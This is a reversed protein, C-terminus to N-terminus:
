KKKRNKSRSKNIAQQKLQEKVEKYRDDQHRKKYDSSAVMFPAGLMVAVVLILFQSPLWAAFANAIFFAGAAVWVIGATKHTAKWTEEDALTTKFRFGISNNQPCRPFILGIIFVLVGLFIQILMVIPLEMGLGETYSYAAIFWSILPCICLLMRYMADGMAQRRPDNATFIAAVIHLFLLLVPIGVVVFQKGRYGTVSGDSASFQVAMNEPLKSWLILGVIIPLLVAIGSVIIWKKNRELM